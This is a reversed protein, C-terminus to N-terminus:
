CSVVFAERDQFSQLAGHKNCSLSKGYTFTEKFFQNLKNLLLVILFIQKKNSTGCKHDLTQWVTGQM